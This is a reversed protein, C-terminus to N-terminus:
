KELAEVVESLGMTNSAKLIIMDQSTLTERLDKILDDKEDKKYYFLTGVPYMDKIIEALHWMQEGYLYVREITDPALNLAIGEHLSQSTEGLELMDGLVAIRRGGENVPMKSFGDLALAMATPSANYVDSLIEAGNGAKKWETRNRTLEITELAQVIKEEPVGETMGIYAAILANKANYVGPVALRITSELFSAKFRIFNKGEELISLSIDQTDDEGFAIKKAHVKEVLDTLLPEDGPYIFLGNEQLGDTIQMKGIAINRRTGFYELHSEGIITIAAVDPKAISSLLILDGMRDQGMELVIKQTDDPMSLITYPMGLENNYNGQTKHTKYHSALVAATMDKTSTKGNTGTIGIVTPNMKQLYYTSLQQFAKEVDEVLIVAFDAPAQREKNWLAAVAGNKRAADIFEHGDREGKLAVFLSGDVIKRSDFEVSTIEKEAFASTDLQGNVAQAIEHITLKM